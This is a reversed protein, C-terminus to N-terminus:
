QVWQQTRMGGRWAPSLKWIIGVGHLTCYTKLLSPMNTCHQTLSIPVFRGHSGSCFAVCPCGFDVAPSNMGRGGLLLGGHGASWACATRSLCWKKVSEKENQIFYNLIEVIMSEM